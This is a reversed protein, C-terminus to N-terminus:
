AVDEEVVLTEASEPSWRRAREAARVAFEIEFPLHDSGCASLNRMRVSCVGEDHLAHDLRVVPAVGLVGSASFKFSPNLGKGLSDIADHLGLAYIQEMEPRYRTANLDGAVILPGDLTRVLEALVEMQERWTVLGDPDVTAMANLGIILTSTGRVDVDAIAVRLSGITRIESRPGLARSAAIAVAYESTDDADDVRHPYAVRGGHEDFLAMFLPTREVIVIVDSGSEVLQRAAADPTQNDVFVNAVLVRLRPSHGVWTPAVTAALRPALLTVHYVCLLGSVALLLWHGTLGGVIAVVWAPVLLIPLGDYALALAPGATVSTLRQLWRTVVVAMLTACVVWGVAPLVAFRRGTFEDASGDVHRAIIPMSAIVAATLVASVFGPVTSTKPPSSTQPSPSTSM